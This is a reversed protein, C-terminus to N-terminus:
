VNQFKASRGSRKQSRFTSAFWCKCLLFWSIVGQRKELQKHTKSRMTWSWREVCIFWVFRYSFSEVLVVVGAPRDNQAVGPFLCTELSIHLINSTFVTFVMHILSDICLSCSQGFTNSNQFLEELHFRNIMATLWVLKLGLGSRLSGSRPSNRRPIQKRQKRKKIKKVRKLRFECSPWTLRPVHLVQYPLWNAPLFNGLDLGDLGDLGMVPRPMTSLKKKLEQVHCMEWEASTFDGTMPFSKSRRPRVLVLLGVEQFSADSVAPLAEGGISVVRDQRLGVNSTSESDEFKGFKKRDLGSKDCRMAPKWSQLGRCPSWPSWSTRSMSMISDRNPSIPALGGPTIKLVQRSESNVVSVHFSGNGDM